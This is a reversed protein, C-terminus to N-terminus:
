MCMDRMMTKKATTLKTHAVAVSTVWSAAAVVVERGGSGMNAPMFTRAKEVAEVARNKIGSLMAKNPDSIAQQLGVLREDAQEIALAM